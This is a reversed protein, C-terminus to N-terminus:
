STNEIGYNWSCIRKQKQKQKQFLTESELEQSNQFYSQLGPQDQVWLDVQRQRGLALVLSM